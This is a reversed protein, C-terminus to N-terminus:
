TLIKIHEISQNIVLLLLQAILRAQHHYFSHIFIYELVNMLLDPSQGKQGSATQRFSHQRNKKKGTKKLALAFHVWCLCVTLDSEKHLSGKQIKQGRTLASTVTETRKHPAAQVSCVNNLRPFSCCYQGFFNILIKKAGTKNRPPKKLVKKGRLFYSREYHRLFLICVNEGGLSCLLLM